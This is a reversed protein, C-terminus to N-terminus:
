NGKQFFFFFLHLSKEEFANFSNLFLILLIWATISNAASRCCSRQPKYTGITTANWDWEVGFPRVHAVPSTIFVKQGVVSHDPLPVSSFPTKWSIASSGASHTTSTQLEYLSPAAKPTWWHQKCLNFANGRSLKEVGARQIPQFAAQYQKTTFIWTDADATKGPAPTQRGHTSPWGTIGTCLFLQRDGWFAELLCEVHPVLTICLVQLDEKGQEQFSLPETIPCSLRACTISLFYNTRKKWASGPIEWFM